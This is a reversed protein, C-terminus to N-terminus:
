EVRLRLSFESLIDLEINDSARLGVATDADNLLEARLVLTRTRNLQRLQAESLDVSLMGQRAQASFGDAGAPAAAVELAAEGAGPSETILNLEDDLFSLRLSVDLPIRNNYSIILRGQEIFTDDEPAPLDALSVSLTDTLRAPQENNQLRFPVNVRVNTEIDVPLGASGTRELPNVLAKTITFIEVPLQSVFENLNTNQNDLRIRGGSEGLDDSRDINVALLDTKAIPQGNNLLGSISDDPAVAFPTGEKGRLFFTEGEQNRGMLATYARNEININTNYILDMSTNALALDSLTFSNFALEEFSVRQRDAENALDLLKDDDDNAQGGDDEDNRFSYFRPNFFGSAQRAEAEIDEVRATLAQDFVVERIQEGPPADETEETVGVVTVNILNDPSFIRLNEVDFSFSVGEINSPHSSRRIRDEGFIKFSLTDQPTYNGAEDLEYITPFSFTLTDFDVDIQNIIDAFTFQGQSIDVFDEASTFTFLEQRVETQYFRTAERSPFTGVARIVELDETNESSIGFWGANRSMQQDDWEFTTRVQLPKRLLDGSNLRAAEVFVEGDALNLAELEEGLPTGDSILQFSARSLDFGLNNRLTVILGGQAVEAEVLREVELDADLPGAMGGQLFTGAPFDAAPEGTITEFELEPQANFEPLLQPVQTVVELPEIEVDPLIGSVDGFPYSTEFGLSILDNDPNISFRNRFDTLTSDIIADEQGLLRYQQGELLAINYSQEAQFSPSSPTECAQIFLVGAAAALLLRAAVSSYNKIKM